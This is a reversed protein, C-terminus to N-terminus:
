YPQGTRPQKGSVCPQEEGVEPNKGLVAIVVGRFDHQVTHPHFRKNEGVWRRMKAKADAADAFDPPQSGTYVDTLAIVADAPEKGVSLLTAVQRRLKEGTPIRGNYLVPDLKPMKGPLRPQLFDRLHPLFVKETMGEMILSIKMVADGMRGMAWVEDLTYEKLWADLYLTDGWAASTTGDEKLDM